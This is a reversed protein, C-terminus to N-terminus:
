LKIADWALTFAQEINEKNLKFSSCQKPNSLTMMPYFIFASLIDFSVDKIIKQEIGKQLVKLLPEFHKEVDEKNVLASFPSNSFQEAYQYYDRYQSVFDFGNFWFTKLVDRFPKTDDYNKLLASSLKQKIEIYTSALLDEKNKYYIYITAPSVNAEKAIKSVSSSAFGIQNVLKITAKIISDQKNEDKIRMACFYIIM